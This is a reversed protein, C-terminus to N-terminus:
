YARTMLERQSRGQGKYVGGTAGVSQITRHLTRIAAVRATRQWLSPVPARAEHEGKATPNLASAKTGDACCRVGARVAGLFNLLIAHEQQGTLPQTHKYCHRREINLVVRPLPYRPERMSSSRLSIRYKTHIASDRSGDLRQVCTAGWATLGLARWSEGLLPSRVPFLGAQSDLTRSTRITTQLLTRLSPGPGLGRSLPAPSPSLGTAGPGQRM